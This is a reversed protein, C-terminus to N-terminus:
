AMAGTDTSAIARAFLRPNMVKPMGEGNVTERGPILLTGVHLSEEVVQRNIQAMDM